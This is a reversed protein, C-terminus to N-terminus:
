LEPDNEQSVLFEAYQVLRERVDDPMPILGRMMAHYEKRSVAAAAIWDEKPCDLTGQLARLRMLDKTTYRNGRVM